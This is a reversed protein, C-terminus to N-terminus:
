ASQLVQIEESSTSAVGSTRESMMAAHYTIAVAPARFSALSAVSTLAALVEETLNYRSVDEPIRLGRSVNLVEVGVVSGNLDLDILLNDALRETKEVKDNSIVLYADDSEHSYEYVLM